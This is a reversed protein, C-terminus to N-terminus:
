KKVLNLGIKATTTSELAKAASEFNIGTIQIMGIKDKPIMNKIVGQMTENRLGKALAKGFPKVVDEDVYVCLESGKQEYKMPIGKKCTGKGITMDIYNMAMDIKEVEEKDADKKIADFNIILLLKGDKTAKCRAYNAPSTTVKGKKMDMYDALITGNEKITIKQLMNGIAQYGCINGEPTEIMPMTLAMTLVKGLPQGMLKETTEWENVIPASTVPASSDKQEFAKLSYEGAIPNEYILESIGIVAAEPTITGIINCSLKDSIYSHNFTTNSVKINKLVLVEEINKDSPEQPTNTDNEITIDVYYSGDNTEKKLPTVTVIKNTIEKGEVIFKLSNEKYVTEVLVRTVDEDDESSCANFAMVAGLLLMLSFVKKM